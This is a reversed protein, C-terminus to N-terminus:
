RGYASGSKRRVSEEKIRQSAAAIKDALKTRKGFFRFISGIGLHDAVDLAEKIIDRIENGTFNDDATAESITVFLETVEQALRAGWNSVREIIGFLGTKFGAFLGLLTMIILVVTDLNEAIFAPM